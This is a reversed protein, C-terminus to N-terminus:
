RSPIFIDSAACSALDIRARAERVIPLGRGDRFRFLMAAQAESGHVAVIETAIHEFRDMGGQRAAADILGDFSGDFRSRCQKLQGAVLDAADPARRLSQVEALTIRMEM